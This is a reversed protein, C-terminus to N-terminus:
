KPTKRRGSMSNLDEDLVGSKVGTRRSGWLYMRRRCFTTRLPSGTMEEMVRSSTRKMKRM